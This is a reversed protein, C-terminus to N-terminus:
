CFSAQDSSSLHKFAFNLKIKKGWKTGYGCSIDSLSSVQLHLRCRNIKQVETKSFGHHCIVEMLFVDNQRHLSLNKTVKDIIDINHEQAFQWTSKVWSDTLLSSYLAYELSFLNRGVGIEVKAAEISTRLLEGMMDNSPLHDTIM